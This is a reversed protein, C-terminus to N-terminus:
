LPGTLLRRHNLLVFYWTLEEEEAGHLQYASTTVVTVPLVGTTKIVLLLGNLVSATEPTRVTCPKPNLKHIVLQVRIISFFHDGHSGDSAFM